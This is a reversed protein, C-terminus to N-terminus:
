GAVIQIVDEQLSIFSDYGFASKLIKRAQEIMAKSLQM